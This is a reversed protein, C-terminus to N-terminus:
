YNEIVEGYFHRVFTEYLNIYQTITAVTNFKRGFISEYQQIGYPTLRKHRRYVPFQVGSKQKQYARYFSGSEMVTIFSYHADSEKLVSNLHALSNSISRDDVQMSQRKRVLYRSIGAHSMFVPANAYARLFEMASAPIERNVNSQIDFIVNGVPAMHSKEIKSVSSKDFGSWALYLIAVPTKYDNISLGSVAFRQALDSELAEFSPFYSGPNFKRAQGMIRDGHISYWVYAM